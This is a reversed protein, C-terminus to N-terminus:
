MFGEAKIAPPNELEPLSYIGHFPAKSWEVPNVQQGPPTMLLFCSNNFFFTHPFVAVNWKERIYDLKQPFCHPMWIFANEVKKLAKEREEKTLGTLATVKIGTKFVYNHYFGYLASMSTPPFADVAVVFMEKEPFHKKHYLTVWKAQFAYPNPLYFLDEATQYIAGGMFIILLINAFHSRRLLPTIILSFLIYLCPLIEIFYRGMFLNIKLSILGIFGFFTVLLSLLLLIERIFPVKRHQKYLSIASHCFLLVFLVQCTFGAWTGFFFFFLRNLLFSSTQENIWWDGEFRNLSLNAMLNPELWPIFLLFVLSPVLIFAIINKRFYLAQGLLFLSSIGYLIAGFYHTWCLLLSLTGFSLWQILTIKRAKWIRRSMELFLFTFPVALMFLLAYPRAHQSYFMIYFHTLIFAMFVFRTKRGFRHPFFKWAMVVGAWGFLVSPLRLWIEPGYPVLHNYVWLFINHLPPHVDPVLWNNWIWKLSLNPNSTVATFLEDYEYSIHLYLFRAIIGVLISLWLCIKCLLQLKTKM